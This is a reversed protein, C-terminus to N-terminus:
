HLNPKPHAGRGARERLPRGDSEREHPERCVAGVDARDLVAVESPRSRLHRGAFELPVASARLDKLEDVGQGLVETCAHWYREAELARQRDGHRLLRGSEAGCTRAFARARPRCPSPRARERGSEHLRGPQQGLQPLPSRVIANVDIPSLEIGGARPEEKPLREDGLLGLCDRM